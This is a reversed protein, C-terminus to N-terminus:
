DWKRGIFQIEKEVKGAASEKLIDFMERVDKGTIDRGGLGCIFDATKMDRSNGSYLAAKVESYVTGEFGFSVSKDIVGLAKFRGAISAIYEKPFPRFSRLKILGAKIGESRLKRVMTRVTGAVSGLAIIVYDADECMYEEYMGGYTRGFATGFEADIENIRKKAAEFAECQQM